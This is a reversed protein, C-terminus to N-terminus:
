LRIWHSPILDKTDIEPNVFWREPAICVKDPNENLWNAWWSFTSNAGIGHKCNRMLYLDEHQALGKTSLVTYPFIERCYELDDSFIFFEPKDIKSKVYEIARRYYNLDLVGHFAKTNLNTYDGRRFHVFVSDISRLEKAVGESLANPANKLTIEKRLGDPDIFYKESQWYGRFYTDSPQEFVKSDFAFGPEEYIHRLNPPLAQTMEIGYADLAYDWTSRRWDYQVKENRYLSLSRGFAWMFLQNGLGGTLRVIV